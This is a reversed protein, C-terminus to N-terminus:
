EMKRAKWHGFIRFFSPVHAKVNGSQSEPGVSTLGTAAAALHSTHSTTEGGKRGEGWFLDKGSPKRHGESSFGVAPGTGVAKAGRPPEPLWM